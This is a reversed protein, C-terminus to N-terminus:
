VLHVDRRYLWCCCQSRCIYGLGTFWWNFLQFTLALRSLLGEPAAHMSYNPLCSGRFEHLFGEM